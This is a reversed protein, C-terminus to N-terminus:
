CFETIFLIHFHFPKSCGECTKSCALVWYFFRAFNPSYFVMINMYKAKIPFFVLHSFKALFLFTERLVVGPCVGVNVCWRRQVQQAKRWIVSIASSKCHLLIQNKLMFMRHQTNDFSYNM